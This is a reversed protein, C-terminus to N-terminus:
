KDQKKELYLLLDCHGQSFATGTRVVKSWIAVNLPMLIMLELRYGARNRGEM